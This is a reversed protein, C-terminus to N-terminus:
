KTHGNVYDLNKELIALKGLSYTITLHSGFSDTFTYKQIKPIVNNM